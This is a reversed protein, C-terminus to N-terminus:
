RRTGAITLFLVALSSALNVVNAGIPGHLLDFHQPMAAILGIRITNIAIISACSLALFVISRVTVRAGYYATATVWALFATSVNLFSSCAAGVQFTTSGDWSQILNGSHSTNVLTAVLIADFRLIYTSFFNFILRSWLTSAALAVVLYGIKRFAPEQRVVICYLGLLTLGVSSLATAPLLILLSSMGLVLGAFASLPRSPANLALNVAVAFALWAIISIGFTGYLSELLGQGQIARAIRLYEANFFGVIVVTALAHKLEIAKVSPIQLTAAASISSKM